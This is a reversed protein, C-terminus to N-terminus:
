AMCRRLQFAMLAMGAVMLAATGGASLSVLGEDSELAGLKEAPVPPSAPVAGTPHMSAENEGELATSASATEVRASLLKSPRATAAVTPCTPCALLVLGAVVTVVALRSSMFCEEIPQLIDRDAGM